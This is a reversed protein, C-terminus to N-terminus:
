EGVRKLLKILNIRKSLHYRSPPPGQFWRLAAEGGSRSKIGTFKFLKTSIGLNYWNKGLLVRSSPIRIHIIKLFSRPM